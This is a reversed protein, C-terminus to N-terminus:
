SSTTPQLARQIYLYGVRGLVASFLLTGASTPILLAYLRPPFLSQIFHDKSAFPQTYHLSNLSLTHLKKAHTANQEPKSLCARPISAYDM